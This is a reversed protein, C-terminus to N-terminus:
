RASRASPAAQEQPHQWPAALRRHRGAAYHIGMRRSAPPDGHDARHLDRKARAGGQRRSDAPRLSLPRAPDLCAHACCAGCCLLFTRPYRPQDNPRPPPVEAVGEDVRVSCCIRSFFPNSSVRILADLGVILAAQEGRAAMAGPQVGYYDGPTPSRATSAPARRSRCRWLPPRVSTPRIAGLWAATNEGRRQRETHGARCRGAHENSADRYM